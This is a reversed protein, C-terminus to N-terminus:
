SISVEDDKLFSTFKAAMKPMCYKMFSNFQTMSDESASNRNFTSPSFSVNFICYHDRLLEPPILFAFINGRLM